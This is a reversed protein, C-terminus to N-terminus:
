RHGGMAMGGGRGGVFGGGGGFANGGGHFMGGGAGVAHISGPNSMVPARGGFGGAFGGSGRFGVAGGGVFGRSGNFQTLPARGAFGVNGVHGSFAFGGRTFGTGGRFRLGRDDCDFRGRDFRCFNFRTSGIIISTTYPYYYPYYPYDYGYAPYAYTSTPVYYTAPVYSDSGGSNYYYGSTSSAVPPYSEQPQTATQQQDRAALANAPPQLVNHLQRGLDDELKFLERLQGTASLSTITQGTATDVVQGTCRIDSNLIQYSGFVVVAAGAKAAVAALDAAPEAPQTTPAAMTVFGPRGAEVLLSQQIGNGIWAYSGPDGVSTFPYVMVRPPANLVKPATTPPASADALAATSLPILMLFSVLIVILRSM